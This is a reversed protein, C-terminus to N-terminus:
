EYLPIIQEENIPLLIKVENSNIFTPKDLFENALIDDPDEPLWGTPVDILVDSRFYKDSKVESWVIYGAVIKGGPSPIDPAESWWCGNGFSMVLMSGDENFVPGQILNSDALFGKGILQELTGNTWSVYEIGSECQDQWVFCAVKESPSPVIDILWGMPYKIEIEEIIDMAPWSSRVLVHKYESQVPSTFISPRSSDDLHMEKLMLLETGNEIWCMACIDKSSWAITRSNANWIATRENAGDENNQMVQMVLYNGSTHTDMLACPFEGLFSEWQNDPKKFYDM